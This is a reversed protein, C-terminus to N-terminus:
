RSGAAQQQRSSGPLLLLLATGRRGKRAGGQMPRPWCIIIIREQCSYAGGQMPRPWRIIIIEKRAATDYVRKGKRVGGQTQRPRRIICIIYMRCSPVLYSLVINEWHGVQFHKGSRAWSQKQLNQMHMYIYIYLVRQKSGASIYSSWGRPRM